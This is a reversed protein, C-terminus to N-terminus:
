TFVCVVAFFFLFCLLMSCLGNGKAPSADLLSMSMALEDHDGENDDNAM